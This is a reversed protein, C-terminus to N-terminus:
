VGLVVVSSIPVLVFGQEGRLLDLVRGPLPLEGQNVDEDGEEDTNEDLEEDSTDGRAGERKGIQRRRRSDGVGVRIVVKHGWVNSRRLNVVVRGGVGRTNVGFEEGGINAIGARGGRSGFGGDEEGGRAIGLMRASWTKHNRRLEDAGLGFGPFRKIQKPAPTVQAWPKRVGLTGEAHVGTRLRWLGAADGAQVENMSM